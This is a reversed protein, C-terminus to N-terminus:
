RITRQGFKLWVPDPAALKPTLFTHKGLKGFNENQSSFFLKNVM